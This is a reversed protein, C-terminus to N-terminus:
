ETYALKEAMQQQLQKQKKMRENSIQNYTVHLM